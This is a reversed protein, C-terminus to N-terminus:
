AAFVDERCFNLLAEQVVRGHCFGTYDAERILLVALHDTCKKAASIPLSSRGIGLNLFPYTIRQTPVLYRDMYKPNALLPYQVVERLRATSLMLLM